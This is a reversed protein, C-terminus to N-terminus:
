LMAKLRDDVGDFNRLGVARTQLVFPASRDCRAPPRLFRSSASSARTLWVMELPPLEPVGSAVLYWHDWDPSQSISPTHDFPHIICNHTLHLGGYLSPRFIGLLTLSAAVFVSWRMRSEPLGATIRFLQLGMVLRCPYRDNRTPINAGVPRTVPHLRLRQRSTPRPFVLVGGPHLVDRLRRSGGRDVISPECVGFACCVARFGRILRLILVLSPCEVDRCGHCVSAFYTRYSLVRFPTGRHQWARDRLHSQHPSEDPLIDEHLLSPRYLHGLRLLLWSLFQQQVFAFIPHLRVEPVLRFFCDIERTKVFLAIQLHKDGENSWPLQNQNSSFFSLRKRKSLIALDQKCSAFTIRDVDERWDNTLSNISTDICICPCKFETSVQDLLEGPLVDLPKANHSDCTTELGYLLHESSRITISVLSVLGVINFKLRLMAYAPRRSLANKATLRLTYSPRATM